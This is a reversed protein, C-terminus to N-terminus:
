GRAHSDRGAAKDSERTRGKKRPKQAEDPLPWPKNKWATQNRVFLRTEESAKALAFVLLRKWEYVDCSDGASDDMLAEIADRMIVGQMPVPLKDWITMLWDVCAGVIYTRRGLCYRFAAMVMLSEDTDSYNKWVKKM